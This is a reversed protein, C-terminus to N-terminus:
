IGHDQYQYGCYRYQYIESELSGFGHCWAFDFDDSSTTCSSLNVSM